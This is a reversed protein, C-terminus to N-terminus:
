EEFELKIGNSKGLAVNYFWAGVLGTIWGSVFAVVPYLIVYWLSMWWNVSFDVNPFAGDVRIVNLWTSIIAIVVVVLAVVASLVGVFYALSMIDIKRLTLTKM